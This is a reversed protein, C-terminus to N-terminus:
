RSTFSLTVTTGKGVKSDLQMQGGNLEILRRTVPLGIGSGQKKTTFYLDFIKKMEEKSIGTGEDRVSVQLKKGKRWTRVLIKGDDNSAHIANVLINHLAQQLQGRDVFAELAGKGLRTEVKIGRGGAETAVSQCVEKALANLNTRERQPVGPRVYMLFGSLVEQLHDIEHSIIDVHKMSDAEAGTKALKAKLVDVNIVLAHLPNKVEHAMIDMFRSLTRREQLLANRKKVATRQVSDLQELRTLAANVRDFLPRFEDTAKAKIRYGYKRKDINNMARDVLKLPATLVRTMLLAILIAGLIAAFAVLYLRLTMEHVAGHVGSLSDIVLVARLKPAAALPWVAAYWAGKELPRVKLARRTNQRMAATLLSRDARPKRSFIVDSDGEVIWFESVAELSISGEIFYARLANECGQSWGAALGAKNLLATTEAELKAAMMEASPQAMGALIRPMGTFYFWAAAGFVLTIFALLILLQKHFLKM